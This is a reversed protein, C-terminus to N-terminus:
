GLSGFHYFLILRCNWLISSNVSRTWIPKSDLMQRWTLAPFYIPNLTMSYARYSKKNPFRETILMTPTQEECTNKENERYFVHPDGEVAWVEVNKATAQRIFSQLATTHIPQNKIPDIPISIYIRRIAADALQSWLQPKPAQWVDPKWFWTALIVSHSNASPQIAQTPHISSQNSLPDLESTSLNIPSQADTIISMGNKLQQWTAESILKASQVAQASVPLSLTPCSPALSQHADTIVLTQNQGKFFSPYALTLTGTATVNGPCIAIVTEARANTTM